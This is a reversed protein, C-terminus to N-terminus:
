SPSLRIIVAGEAVQDGEAVCVETIRGAHPTPIDLAVKGTELMIIIDDQRVVDGPRVLVELVVVEGAACSGCSERCEPYRPMRVELDSM